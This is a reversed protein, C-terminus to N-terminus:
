RRRKWRALAAIAVGLLLVLGLLPARPKGGGPLRCDCAYKTDAWEPCACSELSASFESARVAGPGTCEGDHLLQAKAFSACQEVACQNVFTLEQSGGDVPVAACVPNYRDSCGCYEPQIRAAEQATLGNQALWSGLDTRMELVRAQNERAAITAALEAAGSQLMLEAVACPRGEADIFVPVREGSPGPNHPFRGSTWYRHLVDLARARAAQALPSTQGVDRARLEAEVQALHARIRLRDASVADVVPAAAKVGSLALLLAVVPVSAIM